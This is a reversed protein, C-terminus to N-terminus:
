PAPLMDCRWDKTTRDGFRRLGRRVFAELEKWGINSGSSSRVAGARSKQCAGAATEASQLTAASQLRWAGGPGLSMPTNSATELTVGHLTDLEVLQEPTM